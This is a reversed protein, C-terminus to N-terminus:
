KRSEGSAIPERRLLRGRATESGDGEGDDCPFRLLEGPGIFVVPAEAIEKELAAIKEQLRDRQNTAHFLDESLANIETQMRGRCEYQARGHQRLRANEAALEAHLLELKNKEAELDEALRSEIRARLEGPPLALLKRVAAVLAAKVAPSNSM